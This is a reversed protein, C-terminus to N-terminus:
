LLILEGAAMGYPVIKDRCIKVKGSTKETIETEMADVEAEPVLLEMTVEDAYDCQLEPIQRNRALYQIKGVENYDMVLRLCIGVKRELVVCHELGEKM